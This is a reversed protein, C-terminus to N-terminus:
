RILRAIVITLLLAGGLASVFLIALLWPPVARTRAAAAASWDVREPYQQGVPSMFSAARQPDMAGPASMPPHSPESSRAAPVPPHPAPAGPHVGGSLGSPFVSAGTAIQASLQANMVPYGHMVSARSARSAPSAPPALPPVQPESSSAHSPPPQYPRVAAMQPGGNSVGPAPSGLAPAAIDPPDNAAISEVVDPSAIMTPLNALDPFRGSPPM